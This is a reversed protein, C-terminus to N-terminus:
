GAGNRSRAFDFVVVAIVVESWFDPIPTEMFAMALTGAVVLVSLVSRRVARIVEQISDAM